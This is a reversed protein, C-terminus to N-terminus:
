KRLGELILKLFHNDDFSEDRNDATIAIVMDLSPFVFIQQGWHGSAYFLDEPADPFARPINWEPVARNLWWQAGYAGEAREKPSLPTTRMAPAVTTCYNVWGEPLLRTGEWIGDNLFLFGFRAMDRPTIYVYSSGVYTGAADREWVASRMGLPGFLRTWPYDRYTAADMTNKLMAMLLNSTPSSYEWKAGPAAELPQSAAYAAMDSHGTTFLMANVTSRLPSAEYSENTYLGSSMRLLHDITIGRHGGGALAPYYRYARDSVKLRGEKVAIAYLANTVSKSCSWILHRKDQNFGGAYREYVLYGDKIIVVGDTRIGLREAEAGTRRFAYAEMRKLAAPNLGVEAPSKTRWERTPWYDRQVAPPAFLSSGPAAAAPVGALFTGVVIVPVLVHRRWHM